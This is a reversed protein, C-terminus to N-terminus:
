MKEALWEQIARALLGRAEGLTLLRSPPSTPRAHRYLNANRRVLELEHKKAWLLKLLKPEGGCDSAMIEYAFYM